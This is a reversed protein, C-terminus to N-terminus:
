GTRHSNQTRRDLMLSTLTFVFGVGVLLFLVIMMPDGYAAYFAILGVLIVARVILTTPYLSDIRLRVIQAVVIGLGLLMLGVFRVMVDSYEGSSFFLKLMTQPALLLGAGGFLLYGAPYYLSRLTRDM